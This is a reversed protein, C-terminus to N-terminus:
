DITSVEHCCENFQRINNYTKNYSCKNFESKELINRNIEAKLLSFIVLIFNTSHVAKQWLQKKAITPTLASNSVTFIGMEDAFKRLRKHCQDVMYWNTEHGSWNVNNLLENLLSLITVFRKQHQKVDIMVQNTSYPKEFFKKLVETVTQCIYAKLEPPPTQRSALIKNLYKMDYIINDIISEIYEANSADKLEIDTDIYCQLMFQLYVDKIETICADNRIVRVIHDMPMFSACKLEATGNKGRTCLAMLRVLEIHYKLSHSPDFSFENANKMMEILQECSASDVYFQRVDDSAKSIEEVVKLQTSDTEKECSSVIIQLFELFIANRHKHEILSVIHAILGEAINECLDSNGKFISVLTRVEDVSEVSLAGEKADNEISVYMHLRNQNEKNNRCFSRLFKHSHLILDPMQPDNKKDHPISLFELVVEYVRMNRLLQQNMMDNRGNEFCLTHMRQLIDKVILYAILPAKDMIDHLASAVVDKDQNYLMDHLIKVCKQTVLPYRERLFLIYSHPPMEHEPIDLTGNILETEDLHEEINLDDGSLSRSRDESTPHPHSQGTSVSATLKRWDVWLESKETLNKLIFLDRDIQHYHDVDNNSVLLQVQKMDEIFEQYQTFHRFLIKLAMSTLPPYDNMTMQLLIRLLQQGNEGDFDLEEETSQFVVNCLESVIDDNLTVNGELEGNENCPYKNKFWSLAVTIRYDRRVDM